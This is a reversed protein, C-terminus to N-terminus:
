LSRRPCALFPSLFMWGGKTGSGTFATRGSWEIEKMNQESENIFEAKVDMKLRWAALQAMHDPMVEFAPSADAFYTVELPVRNTHCSKLEVTSRVASDSGVARFGLEPRTSKAALLLANAQDLSMYSDYWVFGGSLFFALLYAVYGIVFLVALAVMLCFGALRWGTCMFSLGFLFSATFCVWHCSILVSPPGQFEYSKKLSPSRQRRWTEYQAAFPFIMTLMLALEFTIGVAIFTGRTCLFLRCRKRDEM